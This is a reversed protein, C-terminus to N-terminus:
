SKGLSGGGAHKIALEHIREELTGLTLCSLTGKSSGIDEAYATLQTDVRSGTGSPSVQSVISFTVRYSDAAPGTTTLGCGVYSSLPAGALRYMKSFHKNGVQGASPVLLRVEIGLDGYAADVAALAAAPAADIIAEKSTPGEYGRVQGVDTTAIVRDAQSAAPNSTSACAGLFMVLAAADLLPSNPSV